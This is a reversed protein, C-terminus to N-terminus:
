DTLSTLDFRLETRDAPAVMIGAAKIHEPSRWERTVQLVPVGAGTRLAQREEPTPMRAEVVDVYGVVGLGELEAPVGVAGPLFRAAAPLQLARLQRVARVDALLEAGDSVVRGSWRTVPSGVDVGLLAADVSDAPARHFHVGPPATLRFPREAAMGMPALRLVAREPRERVFVGAGQEPSVLGEAGLAALASRVTTRTVSYQAMLRRESPLAVGPGYRGDEMAQRLILALQRYLPIPAGPDLAPTLPRPLPM